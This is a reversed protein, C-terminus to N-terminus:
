PVKFGTFDDWSEQIWSSVMVYHKHVIMKKFSTDFSINLEELHDNFATTGSKRIYTASANAKFGSLAIDWVPQTLQLSDPQLATIIFTDISITSDQYITSGTNTKTRHKLNGVYKGCQAQLLVSNSASQIRINKTCGELLLFLGFSFVFILYHLKMIKYYDDLNCNKKNVAKSQM